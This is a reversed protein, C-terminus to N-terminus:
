PRDASETTFFERPQGVQDLLWDIFRKTKVSVSVTTPWIV